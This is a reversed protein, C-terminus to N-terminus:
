RKLACLCQCEPVPCMEHKKFWIEAHEAHSAHNCSACFSILAEMTTGTAAKARDSDPTGLWLMCIGCRPLHRGCSPCVAGAKAAIATNRKRDTPSANLADQRAISRQCHNCRLTVQNPPSAILSKGERSKAMRSHRVTFMARQSAARWAQMQDFYVEKWMDWRVDNVYLPNTFASALVATQLDNTKTIYTQFLDMAQEGLGTLLIGELDGNRVARATETQIFGSLETDNLYKLGLAVRYGLHLYSTKMVDRWNGTTLFTLLAKLAPDDTDAAMWLCMERQEHNLDDAALLAGLGINQITKSRILTRLFNLAMHKSDHLMAQVIAQYYLGREILEQCEAELTDHTFKWGCIALCLQRYEPFNTREGVFAPIQRTETLNVVADEFVVPETTLRRNPNSGVNESWLGSVGVYSLDLSDSTMANNAAQEQFRAVIEWLRELQWDGAVISANKPCDFLYGLRCRDRQISSSALLQSIRAISQDLRPDFDDTGDIPENETLGADVSRRAGNTQNHAHLPELTLSNFGMGIDRREAVEIQPKTSRITLM